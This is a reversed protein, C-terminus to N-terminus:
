KPGLMAALHDPRHGFVDILSGLLRNVKRFRICESPRPMKGILVRRQPLEFYAVPDLEIGFDAPTTTKLLDWWFIYGGPNLVRVMEDAVRQRLERTPINSFCAFQTILDFTCDGFPLAHGDYQLLKILPNKAQGIAFRTSSIDVGILNEPKADYQLLANLWHGNGCGVDLVRWDELSETVGGLLKGLVRYQQALYSSSDDTLGLWRLRFAEDNAYSETHERAAAIAMDFKDNM